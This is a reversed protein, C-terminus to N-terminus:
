LRGAHGLSLSLSLSLSYPASSREEGSFPVSRETHLSVLWIDWGGGNGSSQEAFKGGNVSILCTWGPHGRVWTANASPRTCHIAELPDRDKRQTTPCRGIVQRWQVSKIAMSSITSSEDGPLDYMVTRWLQFLRVDSYEPFLSCVPHGMVRM